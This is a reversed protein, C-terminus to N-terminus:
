PSKASFQKGDNRVADSPNYVAEFCVDNSDNMLQVTVPLSLAPVLTDPLNDGKAKVIVKASGAAGSKLAAVRVGDPSATSDRLAYGKKGTAQWKTGAPIAVKASSSGAYLCLAYDTADTPVGFDEVSTEAGKLWKWTLKDGTDDSANKLLLVSKGAARCLPAPAIHACGDVPDCIDRTCLDNDNCNTTPGGTCVTGNCADDTTCANHDDCTTEYRCHDDCCDGNLRNGDDCDEGSVTRGDGCISMALYVETAGVIAGDL